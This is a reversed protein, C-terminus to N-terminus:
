SQCMENILGVLQLINVPKAVHASMGSEMSKKKDEDFANASLAIIPIGALEQNKLHRIARSAQYGDMVPMQIDMLILAYDGPASSEVKEVAIKGNVATDVLFGEGQLLEEEIELNLENDEVILIKRTKKPKEEAAEIEKKHQTNFGRKQLRLRLSVTFKSGEGEKSSIDIRGDLFDVINKAIALGLGSGPIGSLTTNKHREFPEFIHKQFDEDIGIGTDEVIFQYFGYEKARDASEVVRVKVQGGAATYKVANDTLYLLLKELKQRDAYIDGHEMESIDFMYRVHRAEAKPRMKEELKQMIEPVSCRTEEIRLKGEGIGSLELVDNILALLQESAMTIKDLYNKLKERDDISKEALTTFGMIANMPTRMDHSMNALFTDKASNAHKAHKLAEEMVYKQEMEHMIESDVSRYGMVIQSIHDKNGVNVVRLQLYEKDEGKQIRYNVHFMSNRSLRKRIYQPSNAIEVLERDEPCVWRRIYESAFGDFECTKNGRGFQYEIRESFRYAEIVNKDLDVYFISEYDESLAEIIGGRRYQEQRLEEQEREQRRKKETADGAFVYFFDGKESHIFHGYDEVWRVEGDKRIIRYEVYDLDYHSLRIQQWISEEVAELDEPHVIGRFSNGTLERFQEMTDCGFIRLMAANAYIIEENGDARYIFFGGPMEDMIKRLLELTEMDQEKESTLITMMYDTLENKEEKQYAM